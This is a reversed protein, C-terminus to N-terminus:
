LVHDERAREPKLYVVHPLTNHEALLRYARHTNALKSVISEPDNLNGFAIASTPCSQVCAPRLEGDRLPEGAIRSDLEARRIRQVCFTCKEMVGSTRATVDPNLQQELPMPWYADFFNFKRAHYPCNNACFRTGVCRNYIQGNLGDDTHVSAYVPCVSECPANGCQQCMLPVFHATLGIHSEEYYRDVHIWDMLRGKASQEEGMVPINNESRCALVCAQCGTCRDVDVVMGWQPKVSKTQVANTQAGESM